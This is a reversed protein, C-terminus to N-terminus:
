GYTAVGEKTCAVQWASAILNSKRVKYQFRYAAQLFLPRAM